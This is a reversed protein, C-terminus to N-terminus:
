ERDAATEGIGIVPLLAGGARINVVPELSARAIAGGFKGGFYFPNWNAYYVHLRADGDDFSPLHYRIPRRFEQVIWDEDAASIARTWEESGTAAGILVNKGGHGTTPKLVWRQQQAILNDRGTTSVIRTPPLVDSLLKQEDASLTPRMKELWALTAKHGLLISRLPNAVCAYGERYATVLPKLEDYRSIFDSFLVRRQVIDITQGQARLQGNEITLERPDCVFTPCGRDTFAAATLKQEALTSEDSWDIIAITPSSLRGGWARYCDLLARLLAPTRQMGSALGFEAAVNAM